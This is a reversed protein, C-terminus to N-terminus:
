AAAEGPEGAAPAQRIEAVATAWRDHLAALKALGAEYYHEVSEECGIEPNQETATVEAEPEPVAVEAESAPAVGRADTEAVVAALVRPIAQTQADTSV